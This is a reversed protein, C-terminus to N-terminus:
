KAMLNFEEDDDEDSGDQGDSVDSTQDRTVMAKLALSM